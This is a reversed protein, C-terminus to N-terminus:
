RSANLAASIRSALQHNLNAFYRLSRYPIINSGTDDWEIGGAFPGYAIRGGYVKQSIIKLIRFRTQDFNDYDQSLSRYYVELFQRFLAVSAAFTRNTLDFQYDAQQQARYDAYVTAGDAIQGGPIRQVELFDGRPILVYDINEVYIVTQTEDSLVVSGPDVLPNALLAVEGDKLRLREDVINLTLPQGDRQENRRRWEYSLNLLGGPIAKRYHLGFGFTRRQEAFGTQSLDNYALFVQSRLSLYLQHELRSTFNHQRSDFRSQSVDNYQYGSSFVLAHPLQLQLREDAQLRRFTQNGTQDTFWILSNLNSRRNENLAVTSQLNVNTIYNRVAPQRSFTRRYDDYSYSLRHRDYRGFSRQVEGRLNHRENRFERGSLLEKQDWRNRSFAVTLPLLGNRYNVNGGYDTTTMEVDTALDRSITHRGLNTFFGFSLPRKQFLLSQMRLREAIRTEAREPLVVFNDRQRGPTIDADLNVSLFNPHWVYNRTNLVLRGDLLTTRPKETFASKLVTKRTRYDGELMLSGHLSEVKWWGLSYRYSQGWLSNAGLFLVLILIINRRLKM